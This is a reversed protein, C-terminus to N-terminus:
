SPDGAFQRFSHWEVVEQLLQEETELAIRALGSWTKVGDLRIKSEDLLLVMEAYRIARRSYDQTVLLLFFAASALPLLLSLYKPIVLGLGTIGMSAHIFTLLSCLMAAATTILMATKFKRHNERALRGKAEFYGIQKVVRDKLYRDRVQELPLPPTKDLFRVLRLNRCMRDFGQISLRPFHDTRRRMDWMALFSRCIEAAIRSKMWAHSKRHHQLSSGFAIGLFILEV